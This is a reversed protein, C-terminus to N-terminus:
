IEEITNHNYAFSETIRSGKEENAVVISGGLLFSQHQLDQSPNLQTQVLDARLNVFCWLYHGPFILDGLEKSQISKKGFSPLCFFAFQM